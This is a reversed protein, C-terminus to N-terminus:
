KLTAVVMVPNSDETLTAAVEKMRPVNHQEALEMFDAANIFQYMKNGAICIPRFPMGNNIDDVFGIYDYKETKKLAYTRNDKKDYLIYSSCHKDYNYKTYIQPLENEPLVGKLLIFNDSELVGGLAPDYFYDRTSRHTFERLYEYKGLKLTYAISINNNSSLNFITDRRSNIIKIHGNHSFFIFRNSFGNNRSNIKIRSMVGSSDILTCYENLYPEDSDPLYESLTENVFYSKNDNNAIIANGTGLYYDTPISQVCLGLTDYRVIKKVDRIIIENNHAVNFIGCSLYEGNARGSRELNKEFKGDQANFVAVKKSNLYNCYVFQNNVIYSPYSGILSADITELPFYEIKAAYQSLYICKSDNEFANELNIVNYRASKINNGCGFQMLAFLAILSAFLFNKM